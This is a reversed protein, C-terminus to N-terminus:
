RRCAAKRPRPLRAFKLSPRPPETELLYRLSLAVSRLCELLLYGHSLAVCRGGSVPPSRCPRVLAEVVLGDTRTVDYGPAANLRRCRAFGEDMQQVALYWFVAASFGIASASFPRLRIFVRATELRAPFRAARAAASTAEDGSARPCRGLPFIQAAVASRRTAIAAAQSRAARFRPLEVAM